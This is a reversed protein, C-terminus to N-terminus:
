SKWRETIHGMQEQVNDAKEILARLMNMTITSKIETM